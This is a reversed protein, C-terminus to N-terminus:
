NKSLLFAMDIGVVGQEHSVHINFYIAVQAKYMLAVALKQMYFQLFKCTRM